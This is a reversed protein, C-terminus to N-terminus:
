AAQRDDLALSTSRDGAREGNLPESRARTDALVRPGTDDRRLVRSPRPVHIHSPESRASDVSLSRDAATITWTQKEIM